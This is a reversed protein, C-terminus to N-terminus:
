VTYYLLLESFFFITNQQNLRAGTQSSLTSVPWIYQHSSFELNKSTFHPMNGGKADVPFGLSPNQYLATHLSPCIPQVNYRQGNM